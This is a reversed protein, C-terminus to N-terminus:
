ADEEAYTWRAKGYDALDDLVSRGQYDMYAWVKGVPSGDDAIGECLMPADTLAGVAEPTTTSLGNTWVYEITDWMFRDSHFEPRSTRESQIKAQEQPTVTIILDNTKEEIHWDM